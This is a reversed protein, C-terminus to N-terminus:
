HVGRCIYVPRFFSCNTKAIVARGININKECVFYSNWNCGDNFLQLERYYLFMTAWHEIGYDNDPERKAWYKKQVQQQSNQYVFRGETVRDTAGIWLCYYRGYDLVLEEAFEREEDTSIEILYSNMSECYASADDWIKNGKVFLYCHGNFNRWGEDCSHLYPTTLNLQTSPDTAPTTPEITPKTSTSSTSTFTCIGQLQTLETGM